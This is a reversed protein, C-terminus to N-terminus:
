RSERRAPAFLRRLPIDLPEDLVHTAHAIGAGALRAELERRAAAFAELYGARAAGADTLLDEHGGEVDRFRHGGAFPFDREEATLIQV